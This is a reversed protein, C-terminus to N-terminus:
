RRKFVATTVGSHNLRVRCVARKAHCLGEWRAFRWHPKAKARLVVVTGANYTDDDPRRTVTGKGRVRVMLRVIEAPNARCGARQVARYANVEGHARVDVDVPDSTAILIQKVEAPTLAPNCSLMLGAIGSVAATASSTGGPAPRPGFTAFDKEAAVDVWKGHNSEPYFDGVRVARPNSSALVNATPDASGNNGACIFVPVGHALANAIAANLPAYPPLGRDMFRSLNIVDAGHAVAWNIGAAVDANVHRDDAGSIKVSMIRCRGCIGAVGIGNDIQAGAIAAMATGHGNQDPTNSGGDLINHGQVLDLDPNPVVGSDIVAIVIAPDGQTLSWAQPVSMAELSTRNADYGPDNPVFPVTAAVATALLLRLM